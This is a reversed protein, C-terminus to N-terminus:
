TNKPCVWRMAHCPMHGTWQGPASTRSQFTTVVMHWAIFQARGCICFDVLVSSMKAHQRVFNSRVSGQPNETTGPQRLLNETRPSQPEILMIQVIVKWPIKSSGRAPDLFVPRHKGSAFLLHADLEPEYGMYYIYVLWIYNQNTTQFWPIKHIDMWNPIDDDWSVFEM